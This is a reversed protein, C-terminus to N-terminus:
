RTGHAKRTQTSIRFTRSANSQFNFTASAKSEAASFRFSDKMCAAQLITVELGLWSIGDLLSEFVGLETSEVIGKYSEVVGFAAPDPVVFARRSEQFFPDYVTHISTLDEQRLNFRGVKSLDALQRFHPRFDRNHRLKTCATAIEDLNVQGSFTSVVLQHPRDVFHVVSM